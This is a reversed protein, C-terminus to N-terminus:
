RKNHTGHQPKANWKIRQMREGSMMIKKILKQPFPFNISPFLTWSIMAWYVVINESSSLYIRHTWSSLQVNSKRSLELMNFVMWRSNWRSFKCKELCHLRGFYARTAHRWVFLFYLNIRCGFFWNSISRCESHLVGLMRVARRRNIKGRFIFTAGSQVAILKPLCFFKHM